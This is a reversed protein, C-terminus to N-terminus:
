EVFLLHRPSGSSVDTQKSSPHKAALRTNARGSADRVAGNKRLSRALHSDFLKMEEPPSANGSRQCQDQM